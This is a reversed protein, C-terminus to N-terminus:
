GGGGARALWGAWACGFGCAPAAAETRRRACFGGGTRRRRDVGSRYQQGNASRLNRRWTAEASRGSRRYRRGSRLRDMEADSLGTFAVLTREQWVLQVDDPRRWLLRLAM